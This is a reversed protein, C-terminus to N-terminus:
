VRKYFHARYSLDGLSAHTYFENMSVDHWENEPRTKYVPENFYKGVEWGPVNKMVEAEYDRNKRLQKLYRFILLMM